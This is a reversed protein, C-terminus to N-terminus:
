STAGCNRELRSLSVEVVVAIGDVGDAIGPLVM